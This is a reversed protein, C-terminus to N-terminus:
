LVERVDAEDDVVLITAKPSMPAQGSKGACLAMARANPSFPFTVAAPTRRPTGDASGQRSTEKADAASDTLHAM